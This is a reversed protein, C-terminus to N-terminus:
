AERKREALLKNLAESKYNYTRKDMTGAYELKPLNLLPSLDGDEVLTEVFSFFDLHNMGATWKLDPMAACSSLKLRRLQPISALPRYSQANPLKSLSLERIGAGGAALPELSRLKPAYGINLYRLDELLEVGELSALKTQTIELQELRILGAFDTLDASRGHYHWISLRRLERSRHLNSNDAHWDGSFVELEPFCGFDVGAGPTELRLGRLNELCDLHRTNVKKQDVIELYLLRPFDKLFSLDAIGSIRLGDYDGLEGTRKFEALVKNKNAPTVKLLLDCPRARFAQQSLYSTCVQIRNKVRLDLM